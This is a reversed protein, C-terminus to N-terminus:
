AGGYPGAITIADDDDDDDDDDDGDDDDGGADSAQRTRSLQEELEKARGQM